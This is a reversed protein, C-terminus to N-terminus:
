NDILKKIKIKKGCTKSIMSISVPVFRSVNLNNKSFEDKAM